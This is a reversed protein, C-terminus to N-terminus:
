ASDSRDARALGQGSGRVSHPPNAHLLGLTLAPISVVQPAEDVLRILFPQLGFRRAGEQLADDITGFAGAVARDKIVVFRGRYQDLLAPLNDDYYQRETDLM